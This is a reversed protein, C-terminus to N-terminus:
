QAPTFSVLLEHNENFLQFSEQTLNYLRAEELAALYAQGQVAAENGPECAIRGVGTPSVVPPEIIVLDGQINFGASYNRCGDLGSVEMDLIDFNATIASDSLPEVIEGEENRLETVLWSRTALLELSVFIMEVGEGSLTLTIEQEDITNVRTLASLFANEQAMAVDSACVMRTSTPVAVSVTDGDRTFSANYYNCGASGTISGDASVTSIIPWGGLPREGNFSGLIWISGPEVPEAEAVPAETVTETVSETVTVGATGTVETGATMGATTTLEGAETIVAVGTIPATETIGETATVPATVDLAAEAVDEAPAAADGTEDTASIETDIEETATMVMSQEIAVEQLTSVSHDDSLVLKDASFENVAYRLIFFLLVFGIIPGWIAWRIRGQEM